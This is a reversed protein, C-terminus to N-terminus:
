NFNLLYGASGAADGMEIIGLLLMEGRVSYSVLQCGAGSYIDL